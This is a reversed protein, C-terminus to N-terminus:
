FPRREKEDFGEYVCVSMCVCVGRRRVKVGYGLYDYVERDSPVNVSAFWGEGVGGGGGGEEDKEQKNAVVVATAAATTEEGEKEQQQKNAAVAIAATSTSINTTIPPPFLSASRDIARAKGPAQIVFPHDNIRHSPRRPSSASCCWACSRREFLFCDGGECACTCM